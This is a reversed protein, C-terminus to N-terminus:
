SCSNSTITRPATTASPASRWGSRVAEIRFTYSGPSLSASTWTTGATTGVSTYPAAGTSASQLITYSTAQGAATWSVNVMTRASGTGGNCTAVQGTPAALVGSAAMGRSGGALAIAWVASSPTAQVALTAAAAAAIVTARVAPQVRPIV